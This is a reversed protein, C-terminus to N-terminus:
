ILNNWLKNKTNKHLTNLSLVIHSQTNLNILRGQNSDVPTTDLSKLLFSSFWSEVVLNGTNRSLYSPYNIHIRNYLETDDNSKSIGTITHCNASNIYQNFQHTESYDTNHFSYNKCQITDGTKFETNDFFQTTTIILHDNKTMSTENNIHISKIDLVDKKESILNGQPNM